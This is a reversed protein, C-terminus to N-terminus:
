AKVMAHTPCLYADEDFYWGEADHDEMTVTVTTECEDCKYTADRKVSAKTPRKFFAFTSDDAARTFTATFTVEDGRSVYGEAIAPATGWVKFVGAETTVKVLMKYTTGWKGYQERITLVTGTVTARGEPADTTVEVVEAAKRAAYEADRVIANQIAGLQRSTMSGEHRRARNYVSQVFSNDSAEIAVWDVDAHDAMFAAWAKSIRQEARLAASEKRMADFEAKSIPFRGEACTEGIALLDGSPVHKAVVVYHINAGCHDCRYGNAYATTTSKEIAELWGRVIAFRPNPTSLYEGYANPGEYFFEPEQNYFYGVIEYNEPVFQTETHIDTRKTM